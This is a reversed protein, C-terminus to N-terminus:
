LILKLVSLDRWETGSMRMVPDNVDAAHYRVQLDPHLIVNKTFKSYDVFSKEILYLTYHTHVNKLM